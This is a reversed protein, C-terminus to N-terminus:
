RRNLHQKVTRVTLFVAAEAIFFVVTFFLLAPAALSGYKKFLIICAYPIIVIYSVLWYICKPKNIIAACIFALLLIIVCPFLWDSDDLFFIYLYYLVCNGINLVAAKFIELAKM